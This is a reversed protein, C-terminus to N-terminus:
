YFKVYVVGYYSNYEIGAQFYDVLYRATNKMTSSDLNMSTRVVAYSQGSLRNALASSLQSEDVYANMRHYYEYSNDSGTYDKEYGDEIYYEDTEYIQNALDDNILLVANPLDDHDNTTVDVTLWQDKIKVRNWGHRVEKDALFYGTVYLPELGVEKSLMWFADAYGGCVAKGNFFVGYANSSDEFGEPVKTKDVIADISAQDYEVQKSIYENIAYVKEYDQMSDNVISHAVSQVQQYVEAQKRTQTEHDYEYQVYMILGDESIGFHDVGLIYPNQTITEFVQDYFAQYDFIDVQSLDIRHIGHLMNRAVYGMQEDRAFYPYDVKKDENSYTTNYAVVKPNKYVYDQEEVITKNWNKIDIDGNTEVSFEGSIYSNKVQYTIKMPQSAEVKTLQIPALVTNGDCKTVAVQHPLDNVSAFTPASNIEKQAYPALDCYTDLKKDNIWSIQSMENGKKAVMGLKVTRNRLALEDEWWFDYTSEYQKDESQMYSVEFENAFPMSGKETTKVIDATYSGKEFIFELLYYTTDTEKEWTLKKGDYKISTPELAREFQVVTVKKQKLQKGNEFDRLEVFYLTPFFGWDHNSLDLGSLARYTVIDKLDTGSLVLKNDELTYQFQVQQTLAEDAYVRIYDNMEDDLYKIVQKSVDFEFTEDVDVNEYTGVYTIGQQKFTQAVKEDQIIGQKCGVIVFLLGIWLLKKM